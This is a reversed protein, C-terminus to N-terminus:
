QKHDLCHSACNDCGCGCGGNKKTKRVQRVALIIIILVIGGVIYTGM